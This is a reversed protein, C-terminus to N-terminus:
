RVGRPGLGSLEGAPSGATGAFDYLRCAIHSVRHRDGRLSDAPASGTMTVSGVTCEADVTEGGNGSNHIDVTLPALRGARFQARATVARVSFGDLRYTACSSACIAVASLALIRRLSMAAIRLGAM